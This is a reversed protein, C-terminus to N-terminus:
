ATAEEDDRRIVARIAATLERADDTWLTYRFLPGRRGFVEAKYGAAINGGRSVVVHVRAIEEWSFREETKGRRVTVGEEDLEVRTRNAFWLWAAVLPCVIAGGASTLDGRVLFLMAAAAAVLVACCIKLALGPGYSKRRRALVEAPDRLRAM